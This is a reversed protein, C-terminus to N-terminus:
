RNTQTGWVLGATLHGGTITGAVLYKLQLFPKAGTPLPAGLISGGRVLIANPIGYTAITVPDAMDESDSANVEVALAGDGSYSGAMVELHVPKGDGVRDSVNVVNDSVATATVEQKESFMNESDWM